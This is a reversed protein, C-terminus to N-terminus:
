VSIWQKRSEIEILDSLLSITASVTKLEEATAEHDKSLAKYEKKLEALRNRCKNLFFGHRVQAANNGDKIETPRISM